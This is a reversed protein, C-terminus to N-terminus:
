IKNPIASVFESAHTKLRRTSQVQAANLSDQMHTEERGSVGGEGGRNPKPRSLPVWQARPLPREAPVSPVNRHSKM